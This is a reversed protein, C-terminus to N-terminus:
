KTLVIFRCMASEGSNDTIELLHEGGKPLLSLQHFDTTTGIYEGDLHWFLTAN